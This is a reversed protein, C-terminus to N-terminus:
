LVGKLVEMTLKLSHLQARFDVVACNIMIEDIEVAEILLRIGQHVKEKNGIISNKLMAPIGFEETPKWGAEDSRSQFNETSGVFKQAFQEFLEIATKTDNATAINFTIMAYPKKLRPSPIFKSKYLNVAEKFDTPSSHASFAFPLGLKAALEAGNLSSGLLWVPIKMDYGPIPIVDPDQNDMGDFWSLLQKVDDPFQTLDYEVNRRLASTVRKNSGPARGIGLDIRDPYFSELAGFQEAVSLTAYNPLMIGGSGLRLRKTHAALYSILLAPVSSAQTKICHHEAVWYRHYGLSEALRAQELSMSYADRPTQGEPIRAIDLISFPIKIKEM